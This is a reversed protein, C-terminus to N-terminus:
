EVWNTNPRSAGPARLFFFFFFNHLPAPAVDAKLQGTSRASVGPVRPPPSSPLGGVETIASSFFPLACEKLETFIM